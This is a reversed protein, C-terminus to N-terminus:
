ASAISINKSQALDLIGEWEDNGEVIKAYVSSHFTLSITSTNVANQIMFRICEPKLRYSNFTLNLNNLQYIYVEELWDGFCNITGTETFTIWPIIKKLRGGGYILLRGGALRIRTDANLEKSKYHGLNLVEIQSNAVIQSTYLDNLKSQSPLNTKINSNRYRMDANLYEIPGEEFVEVAEEYTLYVENCHYEKLIDGEKHGRKIGGYDGTAIDWMDDFVARKAQETVSLESGNVTIDASDTITSQKEDVKELADNAINAASAVIGLLQQYSLNLQDINKFLEENVREMQEGNWYYLSNESICKYLRHATPQRYGDQKLEGFKDADTFFSAIGTGSWNAFGGHLESYIIGKEIEHGDPNAPDIDREVFAQFPMVEFNNEIKKLTDTNIGDLKQKDFASMLGAKIQTADSIEPIDAKTAQLHGSVPEVFYLSNDELCFFLRNRSPRVGILNMKEGYYETALYTLMFGNPWEMDWSGDVKVHAFATKDSIWYIGEMDVPGVKDLVGRFAPVPLKLVASDLQRKDDASMVGAKESTAAPITFTSSYDLNEPGLTGAKINVSKDQPEIQLDCIPENSLVYDNNSELDKKFDELDKQLEAESESHANNIDRMLVAVNAPSISDPTDINSFEQLKKNLEETRKSIDAM